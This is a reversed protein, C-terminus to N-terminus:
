KPNTANLVIKDAIKPIYPNTGIAITALITDEDANIAEIAPNNPVAVKDIASADNKIIIAVTTENKTFIKQTCVAFLTLNVFLTATPIITETM